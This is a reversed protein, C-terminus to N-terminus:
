VVRATETQLGAVGLNSHFHCAGWLPQLERPSAVSGRVREYMGISRENASLLDFSDPDRTEFSKSHLALVRHVRRTLPEAM